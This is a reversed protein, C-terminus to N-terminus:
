RLVSQYCKLIEACVVKHSYKSICESRITDAHFNHLIDKMCAMAKYLAMPSNPQVLLGNTANVIDGPGGCDTAVVPKGCAMAEIIVISFSEIRSPMVLCDCKQYHLLAQRRSLQGTFSISDTLNYDSLKSQLAPKLKGDGAWVLHFSHGKHKLQKLAEFLDWAGKAETIQSMCFLQLEKSNFTETGPVFFSTDVMNPILKAQVSTHKAISSALSRSVAIVSAANTLPESIISSIKGHKLFEPFPFPGSHETIIYPIGYRRSLQMAIYGAPFSVHAHIIDPPTNFHIKSVLADINGKAIRSTWSIHPVSLEQLNPEIFSSKRLAQAYSFLKTISHMPKRVQMQFENQGWNLISIELGQQKALAKAQELFFSGAYPMAAYPYWSPIILVKM